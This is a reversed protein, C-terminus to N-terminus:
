RSKSSKGDATKVVVRHAVAKGGEDRYYVTVRVDEELEGTTKMEAHRSFTRSTITKGRKEVTIADDDLDTVVGTFQHLSPKSTSSSASKAASKAAIVPTVAIACASLCLAIALGLPLISRGQRM